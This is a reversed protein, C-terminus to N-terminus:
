SHWQCGIRGGYGNFKTEALGFVFSNKFNSKVSSNRAVCDSEMMETVFFVPLELKEREVTSSANSVATRNGTNVLPMM